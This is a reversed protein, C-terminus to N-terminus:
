GALVLGLLCAGALLIAGLAIGTAVLARDSRRREAEKVAQAQERRRDIEVFEQFRADSSRLESEKLAPAQDRASTLFGSTRANTHRDLVQDVLTLSRGCAACADDEAANVGGCSPCLALPLDFQMGCQLCRWADDQPALDIAHCSPCVQKLRM